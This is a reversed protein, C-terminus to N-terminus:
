SALMRVEVAAYDDSAAVDRYESGGPVVLLDGVEARQRGGDIEIDRWGQTVMTIRYRDGHGRTSPVFADVRSRLQRVIAFRDALAASVPYLYEVIGEVVGVRTADRPGLTAATTPAGPAPMDIEVTGFSGPFTIEAVQYDASPGSVDHPVNGPIFLVDGKIARAYREAQYGLEISGELVIAVQLECDHYHWPSAFGPKDVFQDPVTSIARAQNGTLEQLKYDIMWGAASRHAQGPQHPMEVRFDAAKRLAVKTGGLPEPALNTAMNRDERTRIDLRSLNDADRIRSHSM